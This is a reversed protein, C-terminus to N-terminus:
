DEHTGPEWLINEGKCIDFFIQPLKDTIRLDTNNDPSLNYLIIEGSHLLHSKLGYKQEIYKNTVPNGYKCDGIMPYGLYKLHARIQHSKGTFIRIRLVTMRKNNAIPIFETDILKYAKQEEINLKSYDNESIVTSINSNNDKRLYAKCRKKNKFVGNVITYYYKEINHHKFADALLQSGKLSIGAMIIGSTNRDLRNSISPKFTETENDSIIGNKICYDIVYENISYDKAQAKQSLMGSPKHLALVDDNQYLIIVDKSYIDPIESSINVPEKKRFKEITDEALYLKINDNVNLIENGNAKKDNLVINKKRLMKYIFSSGANNLYKHLYKNLRQGEDNKTIILERMYHTGVM